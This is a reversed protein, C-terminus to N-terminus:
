TRTREIEDTLRAIKQELFWFVKGFPAQLARLSQIERLMQETVTNTHACVHQAIAVGSNSQALGTTLKPIPAHASCAGGKKLPPWKM